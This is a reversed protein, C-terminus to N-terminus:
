AASRSRRAPWGHAQRWAPRARSRRDRPGQWRRRGRCRPRRRSGGPAARGSITRYTRCRGRDAAGEKSGTPRPPAAHRRGSSGHRAHDEQCEGGAGHEGLDPGGRRGACRRWRPRDTPRGRRRRRARGRHDGTRWRRRPHRRGTWMSRRRDRGQRWRHCWGRRRRGPRRRDERRPRRRLNRGGGWRRDVVGACDIRTTSRGDRRRGIGAHPDGGAGEVSGRPPGRLM